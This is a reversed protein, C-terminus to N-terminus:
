FGSMYKHRYIGCAVCVTNVCAAAPTLLGWSIQRGLCDLFLGQERSLVSGKVTVALHGSTIPVHGLAWRTRQVNIQDTRSSGRFIEGHRIDGSKRCKEQMKESIWQALFM